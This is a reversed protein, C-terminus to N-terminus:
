LSVSQPKSLTHAEAAESRRMRAGNELAKIEECRRELM